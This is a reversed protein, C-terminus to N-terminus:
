KEHRKNKKEQECLTKVDKEQYRQADQGLKGSVTYLLGGKKYQRHDGRCRDLTFGAKELMKILERIKKPM